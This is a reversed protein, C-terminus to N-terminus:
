WLARKRQNETILSWKDFFVTVVKRIEPSLNFTNLIRSKFKLAMEKLEFFNEM